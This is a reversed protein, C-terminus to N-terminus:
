FREYEINEDFIWPTALLWINEDGKLHGKPPIVGYFTRNKLRDNHYKPPNSM